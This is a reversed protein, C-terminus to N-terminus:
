EKIDCIACKSDIDFLSETRSLWCVLAEDHM